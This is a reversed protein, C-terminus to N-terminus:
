VLMMEMLAVYESAHLVIAFQLLAATLLDLTFLVAITIYVVDKTAVIKPMLTLINFFQIVHCGLLTFNFYRQLSSKFKVFHGGVVKFSSHLRPFM